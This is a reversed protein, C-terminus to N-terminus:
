FITYYNNINTKIGTGNSIQTTPYQIFESMNGDWNETGLRLTEIGNAGSNGTVGANNNWAIKSNPGIGNFIAELVITNTNIVGGNITSGGFIIQNNNAGTYGILQRGTAVDGDLEHPGNALNLIERVMYYSTPQSILAPLIRQLEGGSVWKLAINGNNNTIISGTADTIIPQYASGSFADININNGSQDYWMNVRCEEGDAFTILSASNLNEGIFGIDLTANDSVRRAEFASGTYDNRLKRVSYALNAGPYTDLLGVIPIPPTASKSNQFSFPSFM